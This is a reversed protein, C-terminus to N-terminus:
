LSSLHSDDGWVEIVWEGDNNLFSNFTANRRVFRGEGGPALSLVFEFFGRLIGGHSVVVITETPHLGSLRNMVKVSRELRQRQSEGKPIVYEFKNDSHYENWETPFKEKMEPFTYGQFIGMNRERLEVDTVMVIESADSIYEATQVARGLDSSYLAAFSIQGLRKAIAQAQKEGLESLPSDLHGM